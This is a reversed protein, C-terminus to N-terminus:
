RHWMRRLLNAVMSTKRTSFPKGRFFTVGTAGGRPLLILDRVFPVVAEPDQGDPNMATRTDGPILDDAKRGNQEHHSPDNRDLEDWFQRWAVKGMADLKANLRAGQEATPEPMAIHCEDKIESSILTEDMQDLVDARAAATLCIFAAAIAALKM